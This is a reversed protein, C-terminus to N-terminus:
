FSIQILLEEGVKPQAIGEIDEAITEMMKLYALERRGTWAFDPTVPFLQEEMKEKWNESDLAAVCNEHLFVLALYDLPHEECDLEGNYIKEKFWEAVPTFKRWHILWEKGSATKRSIYIDLGM